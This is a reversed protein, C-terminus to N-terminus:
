TSNLIQFMQDSCLCLFILIKRSIGRFCTALQTVDVDISKLPVRQFVGSVCHASSSCAKEQAMPGTQLSASTFSFHVYRFAPWGKWMDTIITVIAGGHEEMWQTYASFCLKQHDYLNCVKEGQKPLM